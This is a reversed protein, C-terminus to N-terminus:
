RVLRWLQFGVLMHYVELPLREDAIGGKRRPVIGIQEEILVDILEMGIKMEMATEWGMGLMGTRGRRGRRNVAEVILDFLEGVAPGGGM